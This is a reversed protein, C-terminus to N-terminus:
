RCFAEGFRVDPRYWEGITRVWEAYRDGPVAEAIGRLVEEMGAGLPRLGVPKLPEPDPGLDFTRPGEPTLVTASSVEARDHDETAVWFVAVASEGQAELAAAWRSAAVMKSFTYLPGGLLGPQQGTVVVRTAPDALKRALEDARPNGYGRNAAALAEALERRDGALAPGSPTEGPALFRLPALLDLDRGSLYASTLAPLLGAQALDVRLDPRSTASSSSANATM